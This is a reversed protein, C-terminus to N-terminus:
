FLDNKRKLQETLYKTMGIYLHGVISNEERARKKESGILEMHGEFIVETGSGGHLSRCATAHIRGEVPGWALHSNRDSV